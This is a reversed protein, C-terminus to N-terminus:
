SGRRLISFPKGLASGNGHSTYRVNVIPTPDNICLRVCIVKIARYGEFVTAGTTIGCFLSQSVKAADGFLQQPFVRIGFGSKRSFTDRADKITIVTKLNQINGIIKVKNAFGGSIQRIVVAHFEGHSVVIKTNIDVDLTEISNHESLVFIKVIKVDCIDYNINGTFNFWVTQREGNVKTFVFPLSADYGSLKSVNILTDINKRM